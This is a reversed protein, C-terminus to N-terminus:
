IYKYLYNWNIKIMADKMYQNIGILVSNMKHTRMMAQKMHTYEFLM